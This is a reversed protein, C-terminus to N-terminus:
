RGRPGFIATGVRIITAGEAIATEFDDSMGMSLTDLDPAVTRLAQLHERLARFDRRRRRASADVAPMGMLGRLKLRPLSGIAGALAALQEPPVGSKSQEGSINVQICVQLPPLQAPRQEHLRRAVKERDVGHVWHFHEAIPRTKNSQVPGIFHWNLPLDPLDSIKDLAEQLYNEGFDTLGCQHAARIDAASRTKSVAVVLIDSNGFQSKQSSRRVRELLKSINDSLQGRDMGRM